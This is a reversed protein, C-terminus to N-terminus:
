IFGIAVSMFSYTHGNVGNFTTSTATTGTVLPAYHGGNDSVYVNYSAIGSGADQGRAVGFSMAALAGLATTAIAWRRARRRM